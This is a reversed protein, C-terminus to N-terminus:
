HSAFKTFQGDGKKSEQSVCSERECELGHFRFEDDLADFIPHLFECIM